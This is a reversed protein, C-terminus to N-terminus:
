IISLDNALNTFQQRVLVGPSPLILCPVGMPEETLAARSSSLGSSFESANAEHQGHTLQGKQTWLSGSPRVDASPRLAGHLFARNCARLSLM